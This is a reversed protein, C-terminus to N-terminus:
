FAKQLADHPDYPCSLGRSRVSLSVWVNSLAQGQYASLM